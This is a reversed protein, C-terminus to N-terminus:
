RNYHNLAQPYAIRANEPHMSSYLIPIEMGEQFQEYESESVDISAEENKKNKTKFLVKISSITRGRRGIIQTRDVITAMSTEGNEQLDNSSFDSTMKIFFFAFVFLSMISTIGVMIPLTEVLKPTISAFSWFALPIMAFGGLISLILYHESSFSTPILHFFIIYVIVLLVLPTFKNSLLPNKKRFEMSSEEYFNNLAENIETISFGQGLLNKRIEFEDFGADKQKKIQDLLINFDM